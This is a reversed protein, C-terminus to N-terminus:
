TSASSSRAKNSVMNRSLLPSPYMLIEKMPEAVSPRLPPMVLRHHPHHRPSQLPDAWFWKVESRKSYVPRQKPLM